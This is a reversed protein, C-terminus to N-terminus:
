ESPSSGSLQEWGRQMIDEPSNEGRSRSPIAATEGVGGMSPARSGEVASITYSEKISSPTEARHRDLLRRPPHALMGEDPGATVHKNM